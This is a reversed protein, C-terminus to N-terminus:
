NCGIPNSSVVLNDVIASGAGGGYGILISQIDFTRRSDPWSTDFGSLGDNDIELGTVENGDAWFKIVKNIKDVMVEYCAWTEYEFKVTANKIQQSRVPDGDYIDPSNPDGDGVNWALLDKVQQQDGIRIRMSSGIDASRATPELLTFWRLNGSTPTVNVDYKVYIKDMSGINPAGVWGTCHGATSVVKVAQGSRGQVLSFQPQNGPDSCDSKVIKLSEPVSVLSDFDNCYQAGNCGEGAVPASSNLGGASSSQGGGGSEEYRVEFTRISINVEKFDEEPKNDLSPWAEYGYINRVVSGYTEAPGSGKTEPNLYITAANASNANSLSVAEKVWPAGTWFYLDDKQITVRVWQDAYVDQDVEFYVEGRTSNDNADPNNLTLGFAVKGGDLNTVGGQGSLTAGYLSGLDSVSPVDTKNSNIRLEIVISKIDGVSRNLGTNFGNSHQGDTDRLKKLWTGTHISRNNCNSDQSIRNNGLNYDAGVSLGSLNDYESSGYNKAFFGNAFGGSGDFFTTASGTYDDPDTCGIKEITYPFDQAAVSSSSVAGSSSAPISSVPASSSSVESSSSVLQVSSSSEVAISSSFEVASSSDIPPDDVAVCASLGVSAVAVLTTRWNTAIFHKLTTSPM